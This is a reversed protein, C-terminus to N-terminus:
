KYVIASRRRGYHNLIIFLFLYISSYKCFYTQIKNQSKDKQNKLKDYSIKKLNM